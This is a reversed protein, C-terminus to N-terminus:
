RSLAELAAAREVVLAALEAESLLRKPAAAESVGDTYFALLDGPGLAFQVEPLEPEELIGLPTGVEGVRVAGARM